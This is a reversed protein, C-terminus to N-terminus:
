RADSDTGVDIRDGVTSFKVPGESKTDSEFRHSGDALTSQRERTRQFKKNEGVLFSAMICSSEATAGHQIKKEFSFDIAGPTLIL